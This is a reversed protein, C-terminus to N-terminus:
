AECGGAKVCEIYRNHADARCIGSRRDGSPGCAQINRAYGAACSSKIEECNQVAIAACSFGLLTGLLIRKM